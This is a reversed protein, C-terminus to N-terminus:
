ALTQAHHHVVYISMVSNPLRILNGMIITQADVTHIRAVIHADLSGHFRAHSFDVVSEVM